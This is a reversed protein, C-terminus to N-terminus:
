TEGGPPAQVAVRLLRRRPIVIERRASIRSVTRRPVVVTRDVPHRVIAPRVIRRETLYGRGDRCVPRPPVPRYRGKRRQWVTYMTRRVAERITLTDASRHWVLSRIPPNGRQIHARRQGLPTLPQRQPETGLRQDIARRRMADGDPWVGGTEPSVGNLRIGSQPRRDVDVARTVRPSCPEGRSLIEGPRRQDASRSSPAHIDRTAQVIRNAGTRPRM